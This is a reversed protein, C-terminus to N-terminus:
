AMTIENEYKAAVSEADMGCDWARLVRQRLDL